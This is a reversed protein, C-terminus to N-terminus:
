LLRGFDVSHYVNLQRLCPAIDFFDVESVDPPVDDTFKLLLHRLQSLSGRCMSFVHLSVYPIFLTFETCQSIGALVVSLGSLSSTDEESYIAVVIDHGCSRKLMLGLMYQLKMQNCTRYM